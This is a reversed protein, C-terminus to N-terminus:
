LHRCLVLIDVHIPEVIKLVNVAAACLSILQHHFGFPQHGWWSFEFLLYMLCDIHICYLLFNMKFSGVLSSPTRFLVGLQKTLVHMQLCKTKHFCSNILLLNFLQSSSLLRRNTISTHYYLTVRTSSEVAVARKFRSTPGDKTGM